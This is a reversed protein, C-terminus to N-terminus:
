LVCERLIDRISICPPGFGFFCFVVVFMSLLLGGDVGFEPKLSDFFLFFGTIGLWNTGAINCDSNQGYQM